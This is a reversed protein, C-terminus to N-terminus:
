ATGNKYIFFPLIHAFFAWVVKVSFFVAFCQLFDSGRGWVYAVLCGCVGCCM